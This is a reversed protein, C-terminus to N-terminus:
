KGKSMLDVYFKQLKVANKKIDFDANEIEKKTNERVHGISQLAKEAWDEARADLKIQRILKETKKCEVPVRDSILCPLGAAQAEIVAIGLGEFLSPFLFLDMAQLLNPVDDRLGAFIVKDSLNLKSCKEQIKEKLEGEGVLLLKCDTHSRVIEAFVDILFDHNKQVSFRGVHGCVFTSSKIGLETRVQGRITENYVYAEADIANNLVRFGDTSFMWKGAENSCAFLYNAYKTINYKFCLKLFYKKDKVQNSNHAHAIRIPVGNKKAYKLPIGAMCDLHSHVIQYEKHEKFFRDLSKLYIPSFPNLRPLHYIRGGLQEIEKDYDAQFSRHTLFDFQILNRDINRYYNMLMTELGGRGMYTVVHLIRIPKSFEKM